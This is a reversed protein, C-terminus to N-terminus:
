RRAVYKATVFRRKGERGGERTRERVFKGDNDVDIVVKRTRREGKHYKNGQVQVKGRVGIDNRRGSLMMLLLM